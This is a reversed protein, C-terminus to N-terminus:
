LKEDRKINLKGLYTYIILPIALALIYLTVQNITPSAQYGFLVNLLHGYESQNSIFHQSNWATKSSDILDAQVLLSESDVLRGSTYVLIFTWNAWLSITYKLWVSIFYILVMASICIGLGLFSGLLMPQLTASQSIYGSIYLIFSTGQSIITLAVIVGAVIYTTNQKLTGLIFKSGLYVVLVYNIFIMLWLCLEIGAVFWQDISGLQSVFLFSAPIGLVISFPLWRRNLPLCVWLLSILVFLPLVDRLLLIVTNILM